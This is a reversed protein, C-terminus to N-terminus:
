STRGRARMPRLYTLLGLRRRTPSHEAASTSAGLAESRPLVMRWASSASACDILALSLLGGAALAQVAAVFWVGDAAAAVALLAFLGTLALVIGPVQPWLRFRALQRGGGHEEQAMLARVSGFLGGRVELDWRDYAPGRKVVAGLLRLQEELDRLRDDPSRWSEHWFALHQPSSLALSAKVRHRWPTLGHRLRGYLRALPQLLHLGATLGRLALMQARSSPATQFTARTASLTAQVLTAALAALALPAFALMPRWAVGLATQIMLLGTVLFWEPMLPLSSWVTPARQYLSQFLASGWVGHYVRPRNFPLAETLGRGYIRGCWTPHGLASHREPWKQELLAEGRGYGYQQKLYAWISGRRHHWNVAAPSFGITWGRDQIRWCLDVDDATARFRCDFGGIEQLSRRRFAMNCGPIHEALHDSILVHTPNGPANAVCESIPGDGPPALNPGGVGVHDSRLLKLALYRLWHSDPYADDDIYAVVEGTAAALGTNRASSLGSQETSILRVDFKRAIEGTADTSGDDVVIVEYDPYDLRALHTLTEEITQAGNRSCVIVSAPPWREVAAFPGEQFARRVAQLAPKPRRDRTVLGFDWDEIEAGGRYWEDTWAFIFAGACGAEFATRIQWDLVDAQAEEGHRRSDLGVEALLLPRDGALNQLRDLYSALQQRQELYVNFSVLDCWQLRLYETSPFNVYTVLSGPDEEKTLEGLQCMFREIRRAGHWRVIPAPVENAIAYCLVAPHGSCLRVSARVRGAIARPLNRDELFAIHDEWSVGVMVRLGHCAALDLLWRPPVTYTRIAIIGNAAMAAFDREVIAREPYQWGDAHPRFTGYTVGRVLLKDADAHLFKGRVHARVM